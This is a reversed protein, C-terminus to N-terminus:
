VLNDTGTLWARARDHEHRGFARLDFEGLTGAHDRAARAVVDEDTVVAVRDLTGALAILKPSRALKALAAGGEPLDLAGIEALCTAHDLPDALDVLRDLADRMDEGDIRGSARLELRNGGDLDISLM